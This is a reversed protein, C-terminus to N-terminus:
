ERPLLSDFKIGAFEEVTTMFKWMSTSPNKGQIPADPAFRSDLDAARSIAQGIGEKLADFEFGKEKYSAIEKDALKVMGSTTVERNHNLLHLILWLEFCPNSVACKIGNKAALSLASSLSGHPPTEVDFLCWIADYADGARMEDARKIASRVLGLPEGNKSGPEIQIPHRRLIKRLGNIYLRETVEGEFFVM